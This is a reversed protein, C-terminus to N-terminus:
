LASHKPYLTFVMRLVIHQEESAGSPEILPSTRGNGRNISVCLKRLGGVGLLVFVNETALFVTSLIHSM